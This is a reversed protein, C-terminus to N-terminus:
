KRIDMSINDLVTVMNGNPMSFRQTVNESSLLVLQQVSDEM